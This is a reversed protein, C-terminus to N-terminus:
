NVDSIMGGPPCKGWIDYMRTDGVQCCLPDNNTFLIPDTLTLTFLDLAAKIGNASLIPCPAWHRKCWQDNGQIEPHDELYEMFQDFWEAAEKKTVM